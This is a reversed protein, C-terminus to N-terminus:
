RETLKEILEELIETFEDKGCGSSELTYGFGNMNFRAAFVSEGEASRDELLVAADNIVTTEASEDVAQIPASRTVSVAKSSDGKYRCTMEDEGQVLSDYIFGSLKPFENLLEEPIGEAESIEGDTEPNEAEDAESETDSAEEPAKTPEPAATAAKAASTKAPASTPKRTPEATPEDTPIETEEPAVTEITVVRSANDDEVRGATTATPTAESPSINVRKEDRGSVVAATIIVAAAIVVVATLIALARKMSPPTMKNEADAATLEATMENPEIAKNARIYNELIGESSIIGRLM